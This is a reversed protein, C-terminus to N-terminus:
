LDPTYTGLGASPMSYPSLVNKSSDETNFNFEGNKQKQSLLLHCWEARLLHVNLLFPALM